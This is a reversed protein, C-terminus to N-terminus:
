ENDDEIESDDIEEDIYTLKIGGYENAADEMVNLYDLTKENIEECNIVIIEVNDMESLCDYLADLNKGYYDPFDFIEKLYDHGRENLLTIDLIITQHLGDEVLYDVKYNQYTEFIENINRIISAIDENMDADNNIFIHYDKLKQLYSSISDNELDFDPFITKLYELGKENLRKIDIVIEKM